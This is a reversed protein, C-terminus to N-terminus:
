NHEIIVGEEIDSPINLSVGIKQVDVLSLGKSLLEQQRAAMIALQDTLNQMSSNTGIGVDLEIKMKENPATHKLLADAAAIKDKDYNANQMRDALVQMAKFREGQFMIHLPAQSITLIDTVLKSKRYRSAASTLAAYEPSDSKCGARSYVFERDAFARRYANVINDEETILYACFRLAYIYDQMSARHKEMAGQHTLMVTLLSEGQFEPEKGVENIVDVLEQTITNKRSPLAKQLQEVTLAKAM